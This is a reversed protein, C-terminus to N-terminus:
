VFGKPLYLFSKQRFRELSRISVDGASGFPDAHIVKNDYNFMLTGHGIFTIVLDGGSTKITDQEFRNQANITLIFFLGVIIINIIHKM